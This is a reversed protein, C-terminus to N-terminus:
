LPIYLRRILSPLVRVFLARRTTNIPGLADFPAPVRRQGSPSPPSAPSVSPRRRVLRVGASNARRSTIQERPPRRKQQRASRSNSWNVLPRADYTHWHLHALTAPAFKPHRARAARARAGAATKNIARKRTNRRQSRRPPMVPLAPSYNSACLLRPAPNHRSRRALADRRWAFLARSFMRRSSTSSNSARRACPDDM